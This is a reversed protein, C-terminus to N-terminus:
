FLILISAFWRPIKHGHNAIVLPLRKQIDLCTRECYSLETAQWEQKIREELEEM